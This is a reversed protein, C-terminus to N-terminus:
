HSKVSWIQGAQISVPSIVCKTIIRRALSSPLVSSRQVNSIDALCAAETFTIGGAMGEFDGDVFPVPVPSKVTGLTKLCIAEVTVKKGSRGVDETKLKCDYTIGFSSTNRDLIGPCHTSTVSSLPECGNEVSVSVCCTHSYDRDMSASDSGM